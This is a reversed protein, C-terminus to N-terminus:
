RTASTTRARATTPTPTTTTASPTSPGDTNDKTSALTYALQAGLNQGFRKQFGSRCRRLVQVQGGDPPRLRRRRESRSPRRAIPANANRLYCCTIAARTSSTSARRWTPRWSRSSASAASTRTRRRTTPTSSRSTRRCRSRFRATGSPDPYGPDPRRSTSGARSSSRPSAAAREAPGPRLLASAAACRPRARARRTGHSTSAPGFNQWDHKTYVQDEYDWRLGINLTLNRLVQWQDQVFLRSSTTRSRHQPRGLRPSLHRSADAPRGRQVAADSIFQFLGDFYQPVFADLKIHNYDVGAKVFHEGNSGLTFSSRTSSSTGSRAHLDPAPEPAKGLAALAASITPCGPCNPQLADNSQDSYQFRAENLADALHGLLAAARLRLEPHRPHLRGGFDRHRRGRRDRRRLREHDEPQGAPLAGHADPQEDPHFDIKAVVRPERLDQPVSTEAPLGLSALMAPDVGVVATADRWTQEFSGFFFLRTRSSRGAAPLREPDVPRVADGGERRHDPNTQAFPDSAALSDARYYGAVRAHFDNTGSRTLVNIIAGSAQGYQGDYQSSM